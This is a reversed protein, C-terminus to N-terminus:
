IMLTSVNRAKKASDRSSIPVSQTLQTMMQIQIRHRSSSISMATSPTSYPRKKSNKKRRNKANTSILKLNPCPCEQLSSPRNSEKSM